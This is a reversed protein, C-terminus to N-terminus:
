VLRIAAPDVDPVDGERDPDDPVDPEPGVPPTHALLIAHVANACTVCSRTYNM